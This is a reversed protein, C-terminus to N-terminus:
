FTLLFLFLFTRQQISVTTLNKDIKIGFHTLYPDQDWKLMGIGHQISEIRQKPRTVAFKIM